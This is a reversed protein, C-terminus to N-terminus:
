QKLKLELKLKEISLQKEEIRLKLLEKEDNFRTDSKCLNYIAVSLIVIITFYIIFEKM